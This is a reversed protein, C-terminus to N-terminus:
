RGLFWANLVSIYPLVGLLLWPLWGAWFVLQEECARHIALGLLAPVQKADKMESAPPMAIGDLIGSSLLANSFREGAEVESALKFYRSNVPAEPLRRAAQKLAQPLSFDASICDALHNIYHYSQYQALAAGLAPLRYALALCNSRLSASYHAIQWVGYVIGLPLLGAVGLALAHSIPILGRSLAMLPLGLACVLLLLVPGWLHRRLNRRFEAQLRYHEALRLYMKALNGVALGLQMFQLEWATFMGGERLEDLVIRQGSAFQEALEDLQARQAARQGKSLLAVVQDWNNEGSQSAQYLAQFLVFRQASTSRSAM